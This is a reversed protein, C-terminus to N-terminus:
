GSLEAIALASRALETRVVGPDQGKDLSEASSRILGAILMIRHRRVASDATAEALLEDLAAYLERHRAGFHAAVDPHLTGATATAESLSRHETDTLFDLQVEM